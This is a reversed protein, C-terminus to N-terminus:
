AAAAAGAERKLEVTLLGALILVGGTAGVPGMHENLVLVGIIAAFVSEMTFIVAARTPTTDRQYRTQWYTALVTAFISLFALNAWSWPESPAAWTEAALSHTLALTATTTLQIATLPAADVRAGYRDLAVIYVAFAAACGLTLLDGLGFGGARWPEILGRVEGGPATLGWLGLIVLAIGVLVRGDPARRTIGMHLLPTMIVYLATLFGSRSSSTYQLGLTQLAFGAYLLAGLTIGLTLTRRELAGGLKRRFVIAFLLAATGFRWALLCLPPLDELLLKTCGFTGGWIVTITVLM